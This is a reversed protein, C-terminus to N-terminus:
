KGKRSQSRIYDVTRRVLYGDGKVRAILANRRGIEMRSLSMLIEVREIDNGASSYQGEVLDLDSSDAVDGLVAICYARYWPPRNKDLMWRRCLALFRAPRVQREYFWRVIEFLQYDYVAETSELCELLRNEIVENMPFSALHRLIYKTEEPRLPLIRLCYDVALRSGVKGLRTLLYHFLTKDFGDGSAIFNESFARELIEPPPAYPHQQLFRDIDKLSGYSAVGGSVERLEKAIQLSISQILPSVGDIEIRAESAKIIKTKASQLNLGRKRVLDNLLLLAQKAELSTKCFVRIDDVYRLHKFGANRMGRDVPDLYVKSLVDSGSYGQPIGKGRPLAWRNLLSMLLQHLDNDPDLNKLDSALRHLDINEYFGTIDTTLVFFVGDDLAKLSKTRWEAWMSFDNRVWMPTKSPSSLRYGVDPDGQSWKLLEWLNEHLHGLIANFVLEDELCLVAGPRVLWNPKPTYCIVCDHPSYGKLLQSRTTNLWAELDSEIIEMLFPHSVFTRDPRDQKVRRWALDLDLEDVAAM